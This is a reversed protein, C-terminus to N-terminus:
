AFVHVNKTKGIKRLKRYVTRPVRVKPTKRTKPRDLARAAARGPGNGHPHDNHERVTGYKNAFGQLLNKNKHM